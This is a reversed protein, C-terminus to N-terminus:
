FFRQSIISPQTNKRALKNVIFSHIDKLLLMKESFVTGKSITVQSTTTKGEWM